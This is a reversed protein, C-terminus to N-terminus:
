AVRRCLLLFMFLLYCLTFKQANRNKQEYKQELLM